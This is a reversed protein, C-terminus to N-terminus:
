LGAALVGVRRRGATMAGLVGAAGVTLVGLAASTVRAVLYLGSPDARFREVFEATSQSVGVLREVAYTAAYVSLLLYKFLPPNAFTLGDPLGRGVALAQLVYAPEDPHFLEPLGFGIGWLRLVLAVAVIAVCLVCMRLVSAGGNRM